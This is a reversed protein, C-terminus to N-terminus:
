RRGNSSCTAYEELPMDFGGRVRAWCEPCRRWYGATLGKGCDACRRVSPDDEVKKREPKPKVVKVPLAKVKSASVEARRLEVWEVTPVFDMDWIKGMARRIMVGRNKGTRGDSVMCLASSPRGHAKIAPMILGHPGRLRGHSSLEYRPEDPLARWEEVAPLPTPTGGGTKARQRAADRKRTCASRLQKARDVESRLDDVWQQGPVFDVGWVRRMMDRVVIHRPRGDVIVSYRATRPRCGRPVNPRLQGLPGFLRGDESLQYEHNEPLPRTIPKTSM